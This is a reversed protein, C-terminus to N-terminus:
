IVSDEKKFYIKKRPFPDHVPEWVIVELNASQRLEAGVKQPRGQIAQRFNVDGPTPQPPPPTTSDMLMKWLAAM